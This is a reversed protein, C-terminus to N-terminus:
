KGRQMLVCGFGQNSADCSVMFDDLGDLLTLILANCLNDKLIQFAEEQKAGCEYKKNKQTLSTIHKAIKSINAIFRRYYGAFGLFSLIESPSKPVKQNKVVKIKSPDVHIDNDDVVRGLFHVEQLEHDEKSKSYILIDNIFVIIFM